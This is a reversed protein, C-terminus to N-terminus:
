ENIKQDILGVLASIALVVFAWIAIGPLLLYLGVVFLSIWFGTCWYCTLLYGVKSSEPPFKAWFRNRPGDLLADEVLLRTLRYSALALIIFDLLNM